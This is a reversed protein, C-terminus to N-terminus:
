KLLEGSFRFLHLYFKESGEGRKGLEVVGRGVERRGESEQEDKLRQLIHGLRGLGMVRVSM